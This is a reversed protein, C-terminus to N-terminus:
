SGAAKALPPIAFALVSCILGVLLVRYAYGLLRYKKGALVKGNQYIDRAFAEHVARADGLTRILTDIYDRETMKSFVGFFLINPLAGPSKSPAVQPLVALVTITAAVFAAGGLILIPLTPPGSRAQGLSLTFIVFTIGLLMSAKQDAMQSLQYQIQQTTRLLHVADVSVPAPARAAVGSVATQDGEAMAGQVGSGPNDKDPSPPWPTLADRRSLDPNRGGEPSFAVLTRERDM